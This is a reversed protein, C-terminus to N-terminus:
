SRGLITGRAFGLLSMLMKWTFVFIVLNIFRLLSLKCRFDLM